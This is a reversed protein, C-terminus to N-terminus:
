PTKVVASLSFTPTPTDTGGITMVARLSSGFIPNLNLREFAAATKEAFTLVTTWTDSVPDWEEITVNLTPNTGTFATVDLNFVGIEFAGFEPFERSTLTETEAGSVHFVILDQIM